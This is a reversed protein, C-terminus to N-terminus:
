MYLVLPLIPISYVFIALPIKRIHLHFNADDRIHNSITESIRPDLGVKDTLCPM